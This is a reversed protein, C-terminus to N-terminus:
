TQPAVALDGYPNYTADPYWELRFLAPQRQISCRQVHVPDRFSHPLDPRGWDGGWILGHANALHGLFSYDGKWTPEGGATKVIDCALGYHHVGVTRLQTAGQAFLAAQREESRYTEFAVVTIGLAAADAIVAQVAARTTPELLAMDAVRTSSAFQASETIVDQYFNSM